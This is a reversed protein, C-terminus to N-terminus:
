LQAAPYTGAKDKYSLKDEKKALNLYKKFKKEDKTMRYVLALNFYFMGKHFRKGEEKEILDILKLDQLYEKEAKKFEGKYYYFLGKGGTLYIAKHTKIPSYDRAKGDETRWDGLVIVPWENGDTFISNKMYMLQPASYSIRVGM